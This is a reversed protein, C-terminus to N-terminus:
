STMSDALEAFLIAEGNGFTVTDGDVKGVGQEGQTLFRNDWVEAGRFLFLVYETGVRLGEHHDSMLTGEGADGIVASHAVEITESVEGLLVDTVDFSSVVYQGPEVDALNPFQQTTESVVVGRVVLDSKAALEDFRLDKQLGHIRSRTDQGKDGLKGESSSSATGCGAVLVSFALMAAM